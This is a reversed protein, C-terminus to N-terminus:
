LVLLSGAAALAAAAAAALRPSMGSAASTNDEGGDENSSSDGRGSGSTFTDKSQGSVQEIFDLYYAVHTYFALGNKTACDVAGPNSLDVGSSTLGVLKAEGSDTVVAPSGSDGQCSDKGPTLSNDSCIEPGNASKYTPLAEQCKSQSGVEVEVSMLTTPLTDSDSATKGWGM